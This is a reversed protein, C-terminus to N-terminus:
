GTERNAELAEAFESPSLRTVIRWRKAEASSKAEIRAVTKASRVEADVLDLPADGSPRPLQPLFLEIATQLRRADRRDAATVFVVDNLAASLNDLLWGLRSQRGLKALRLAVEGLSVRDVNRLLVPGLATLHRPSEPSALVEAVVESPEDFRAPVPTTSAVLHRAGHRALANQLPSGARPNPVFFDVGVNFLELIRLLQEASFSGQGREIQSLRPQSLELERALASQSWRRAERLERVRAGVFTPSVLSGTHEHAQSM